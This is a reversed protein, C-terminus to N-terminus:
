YEMFQESITLNVFQVPFFHHSIESNSLGDM